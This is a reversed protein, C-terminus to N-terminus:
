LLAEIKAGTLHVRIARRDRSLLAELDGLAQARELTGFTLGETPIELDKEADATVQIFMSQDSGGKHLQGTSHLFRPGFGLTTANGTMQLVKKRLGQLEALTQANRPLYANIAIYDGPQAQKLFAAVVESVDGGAPLNTWAKGYVRAGAGEWLLYEEELKGSQQYQKIKNATRTKNDQVDPQDFANVKILMSAVATAIEWRYFEAGIQYPNLVPFVLVPQGATELGSILQDEEGTSRLYAFLRDHSYASADTLPEIDVPVIGRGIKGTSEAILQELWSGVSKFASDAIFTVKDRGALAATGMIAGLVLGPNRIAPVAPICQNMMETAQNLLKELDIGLLAAPFMGFATLASYRGGVQPDGALVAYFKREAALKELKTGPDTIAVFHVGAEDGLKEAAKAWFYDFYAQVESTTGSKSSVVFLTKEVPHAADAAAVQAPDTSDLITLKMAPQGNLEGQPFVLSLVEPALSSGGMGLLLVRDMGRSRLDIALNTFTEAAQLSSFPASLWGLRQKVETQGAPDDTWLAADKAFMREIVKDIQLKAVAAPVEGQLPGLQKVAAARRQEVTALLDTFADAFAKVGEAELEDTVQAMSIGIAELDAFVKKEDEVAANLKVKSEGHEAFALLTQPPMTNVTDPGILEEVYLVDRYAPNKTSTSAWLPRQVRAGAAKLREFRKSAFRELFEAYALRANAIAAKGLLARAAESGLAELKKDVKSDVRSVFFSAVSAIQNVPLNQSLREELGKLYAEIVEGYREISFILTVNVNIGAAISQRIADLGAKTAPIKVMLNPRDVLQWLRAAEAVTGATDNALYPSVELSVYGDGAHTENYLPRFLDAAAQIDEVSLHTFIEETTLGSWALPQLAADYDTSKAIANHFISPNSTVGQIAGQNIMAAMEGNELLSRQINDYWISQGLNQLAKLRDM